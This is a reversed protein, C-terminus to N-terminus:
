RRCSTIVLTMRTTMLKVSADQPEIGKRNLPPPPGETVVTPVCSALSAFWCTTFSWDLMLVSSPSMSTVSISSVTVVRSTSLMLMLFVSMGAQTMM